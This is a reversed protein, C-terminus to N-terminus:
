KGISNTAPANTGSSVAPAIANTSIIAPPANTEAPMGLQSRIQLRAAYPLVPKQTDLLQNLVDRNLVDFPPLKTREQNAHTSATKAGYHDYVKRALNKYGQHRDDQGIALNYYANLLLGRVVGTTREQSTDGLESQVRAVAYEDLTLNRPFSNPDNDLITKDPYKEGLIKYWKSSEAVRNNEYLFYVASLLFNREARQIGDKQGPDSEEAYEKEYTDYAKSALDLNPALSYTKSFPDTIIRGHFFAQQM